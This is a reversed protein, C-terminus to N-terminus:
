IFIEDLTITESPLVTNLDKTYDQIKSYFTELSIQFIDKFIHKWNELTPKEFM